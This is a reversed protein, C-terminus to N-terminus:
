ASFGKESLALNDIASNGFPSNSLVDAFTASNKTIAIFSNLIITSNPSHTRVNAQTRRIIIGVIIATFGNHARKKDDAMVKLISVVKINLWILM